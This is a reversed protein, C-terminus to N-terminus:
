VLANWTVSHHVFSVAIHRTKTTKGFSKFALLESEKSFSEAKSERETYETKSSQRSFPLSLFFSFSLGAASEQKEKEWSSM